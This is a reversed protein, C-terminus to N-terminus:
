LTLFGFKNQFVQQPGIGGLSRIKLQRKLILANTLLIAVLLAMRNNTAMQLLVLVLVLLKLVNELDYAASKFQSQQQFIQIWFNIQASDEIKHKLM